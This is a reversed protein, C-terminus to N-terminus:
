NSIGELKLLFAYDLAVDKIGEFRGSAGGHGTSMDTHLLITNKNNTYDRLKAVWKAPEWYQVQSDHLGTTVLIAPYDQNSVNDYPSYSKMYHYYEENNPNGWEDYEGTTLPISEDLMTTVVDVFPVAAVIGKYLEPRLNIIAGMLLGGASGGMAYLRNATSYNHKILHEACSNFDTFTNAKKLMKGEEYWKRGLYQGGRPHAIAFCFGRDMLSLRSVSFSADVTIGYSGYGYLLLPGGEKYKTKKYVLSIPIKVGDEALAWIRDTHYDSPEHGGIVEQQKLLERERTNMNYSFLSSPTSLSTYSFRLEESFFDPNTGIGMSYTKEDLELYHDSDDKNSIIRLRVLGEEREELVLFQSFIEIDELYVDERHPILDEWSDSSTNSLSCNMLKFNKAGDKNTRIYWKNEFHAIGYELKDTREQFVKFEGEPSQASLYRYEDSLTSSSRIILYEESKSKYVGSNFTEDKEHFILTDKQDSGMKHRYIFAARLTDDKQTYFVFDNAASWSAGGTTNEIQDSLIEETELNKFRITYIRRGIIDEGFALTKNDPSISMGGLQYYDHGEARINADLIVEEKNNLNEKKRCYIPYEQGKNFRTYYWYGNKKYPVSEDQEKIRGKIEEFLNKQLDETDKLSSKTFDNEAELYDIVEKNDRERLWYYNDIRLDGHKEMEFPIKKCIPPNKHPKQM